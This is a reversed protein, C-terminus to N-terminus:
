FFYTASLQGRANSAVVGDEFTQQTVQSSAALQVARTVAVFVSLDAYAGTDWVFPESTPPVLQRANTSRTLSALASVWVRRGGGFPLHYQMGLVISRWEIPHVNGNADFTVIGPQLGARYTPTVLLNSPNPLVPYLVGGTLGTYLDALGSGSTVELTLSLANRLSQGRAPILPAFLDLAFGRGRTRVQSTPQAVFENLAIERDVVSVGVQLPAVVPPGGGQASAGRWHNVALRLGLDLDTTGTVGDDSRGGFSGAIEFDVPAFRFIHSVRVQLEEYYLQGPVGMFAATNPLLGKGGWGFLGYYRGVLVDVFPSRVAFYVHRVRLLGCRAVAGDDGQFDPGLELVFSGQAAKAEPSAVRGGVRSDCITLQTQADDGALTHPRALTHNNAGARFARTSDNLADLEGFGYVELLGVRGSLRLPSGDPLTRTNQFDAKAEEDGPGEDIPAVASPPAQARAARAATVLVFVAIHAHIRL